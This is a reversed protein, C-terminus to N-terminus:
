KVLNCTNVVKIGDSDNKAFGPFHNILLQLLDGHLAGKSTPWKDGQEYHQKFFYLSLRLKDNANQLAFYGCVGWNPPIFHLTYGSADSGKLEWTTIEKNQGQKTANERFLKVIQNQATTFDTSLIYIAM